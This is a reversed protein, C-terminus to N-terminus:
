GGDVFSEGRTLIDKSEVEINICIRSAVLAFSWGGNWFLGFSVVMEEEGVYGV